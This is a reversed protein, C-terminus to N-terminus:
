LRLSILLGPKRVCLHCDTGIVALGQFLSANTGVDRADPRAEKSQVNFGASLNLFVDAAFGMNVVM